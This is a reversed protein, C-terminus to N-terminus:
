LTHIFCHKWKWFLVLSKSAMKVKRKYVFSSICVWFPSRQILLGVHLHLGQFHLRSFHMHLCGFFLYEQNFRHCKQGPTKDHSENMYIRGTFSFVSWLLGSIVCVHQVARSYWKPSNHPPARAFSYQITHDHSQVYITKACQGTHTYVNRIRAQM